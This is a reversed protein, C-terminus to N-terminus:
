TTSELCHEDDEDARVMLSLCMLLCVTRIFKSM